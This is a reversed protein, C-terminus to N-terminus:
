LTLQFLISDFSHRLTHYLAYFDEKTITTYLNKFDYIRRPVKSTDTVIIFQTKTMVEIRLTITGGNDLHISKNLM